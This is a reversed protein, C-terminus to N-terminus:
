SIASAKKNWYLSLCTGAILQWVGYLMCFLLMEGLGNFFNLVLIIGFTANQIGSEFAVAKADALPLKLLKAFVFGVTLGLANIFIVLIFIDKYSLSLYQSNAHIAGIIIIALVVLSFNKIIPYIKQTLKEFHHNFWIGAVFPLILLLVVMTFIDLPNISIGNTPTGALYLSSWFSFNLPTMIVAVLTSAVSMLISVLTNGKSINTFLNSMNGGPCCCILIVGLGIGQPIASFNKVIMFSIAPFLIFQSFLGISIPKYSHRANQLQKKNIDLSVGFIVIALVINILITQTSSVVLNINNPDTM